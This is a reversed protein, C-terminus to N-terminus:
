IDRAINANSIATVLFFLLPVLVLFVLVGIVLFAGVTWFSASPVHSSALIITKDGSGTIIDYVEKKRGSSAWCGPITNVSATASAVSVSTCPLQHAAYAKVKRLTQTDSVTVGGETDGTVLREGDPSLAM